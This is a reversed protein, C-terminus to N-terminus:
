FVVMTKNGWIACQIGNRIRRTSWTNQSILEQLMTEV